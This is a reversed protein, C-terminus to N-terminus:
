YYFLIPEYRSLKTKLTISIYITRNHLCIYSYLVKNKIYIESKLTLNLMIINGILYFYVTFGELKILKIVISPKIVYYIM